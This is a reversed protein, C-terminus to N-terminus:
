LRTKLFGWRLSRTSVVCSSKNLVECVASLILGGAVIVNARDPELTIVRKRESLKLEALREIWLNLDSLPLRRGHPRTPDDFPPGLKLM